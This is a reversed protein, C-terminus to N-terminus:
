IKKYPSPRIPDSTPKLKNATKEKKKKKNVVTTFKAENETVKIVINTSRTSTDKELHQNSFSADRTLEDYSEQEITSSSTASPSIAQKNNTVMIVTAEKQNTADMNVTESWVNQTINTLPANENKELYQTHIESKIYDPEIEDKEKKLKAERIKWYYNHLSFS